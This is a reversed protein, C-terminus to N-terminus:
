SKRNLMSQAYDWLVATREQPLSVRLLAQAAELYYQNIKNVEHRIAIWM